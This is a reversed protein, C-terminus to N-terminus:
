SEIEVYGSEVCSKDDQEIALDADRSAIVEVPKPGEPIAIQVTVGTNGIVEQRDVWGFNNKLNFIKGVPNTKGSLLGQEIADEIRAKASKVADLFEGRQQDSDGIVGNEYNLLSQRSNFGLALALGTVTPYEEKGEREEFYLDIAANLDLCNNFRPPRGVKAM